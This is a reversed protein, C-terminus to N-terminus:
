PLYSKARPGRRRGPVEPSLPSAGGGGQAGGGRCPGRLDVRIPRREEERADPVAATGVEERANGGGNLAAFAWVSRTGRRRGPVQVARRPREEERARGRWGRGVAGEEERPGSPRPPGVEEGPCRRGWEPGQGRVGDSAWGGGPRASGTAAGMGGGGPTAM